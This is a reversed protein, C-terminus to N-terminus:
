IKIGLRNLFAHVRSRLREGMLAGIKVRLASVKISISKAPPLLPIAQASHQVPVAKIVVQYIHSHSIKSMERRLSRPLRNWGDAFETAEPLATVYKAEIIKLGAKAFLEEMNKLCFFRIHTKDLLGWDRYQFDGAALCSMVAAHGAHPLSIVAYGDKSIFSAMRKLTEWPDYLHELVDAAVVVDFQEGPELLSPWDPSNLDARFIRDCYPAVRRIADPDIELGTVKCELGKAMNKTISGPGCGVELVNKKFGVLRLVNAPASASDMDVDYEYNHRQEEMILGM